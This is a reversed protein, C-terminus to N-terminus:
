PHDELRKLLAPIHIQDTKYSGTLAYLVVNLGFRYAQQRQKAGGPIVAYPMNGNADIAWAHAWDAFGIIIPSIDDNDSEKVRSIWVPLHAYRGPFDRLLYFTHALLNHKTIPMLPPIRLGALSHRLIDFVGNQDDSGVTGSQTDIWLVGGHAMFQNLADIAAPSLHTESPIPWYILPYYSLDDIGPRVADPTGLVVSTKANVFDSLGKLGERSVTDIAQNDTVVYALRTELAAQPSTQPLVFAQQPFSTLSVPPMILNKSSSVAPTTLTTLSSPPPMHPTPVTALPITVHPITAQPVLAKPVLAKPVTPSPVTAQSVYPIIQGTNLSPTNLSPARAEEREQAAKQAREQPTVPTREQQKWQPIWMQAQAPTIAGITGGISILGWLFLFLLKKQTQQTFTIFGARMLSIVLSDLFLLTMAFVICFLGLPQDLHHEAPDTRIGCLMEPKLTDFANTTNLARRHSKDGYLGPPHKLSVLTHAFDHSKIGRAFSPPTGLIGEGNLTLFPSLLDTDTPIYVGNAQEILRQLMSVFLGSLPLSSWDATSSVHFLIIKGKGLSTYTVLPTGDALRAWVHKSLYLTPKALVQQTITVDSPITLGYFPSTVKFPSLKQPTDWTMTGNLQRMGELLPVPLLTKSPFDTDSSDAYNQHNALLPGAFRILTGGQQVWDRVRNFTKGELLSGDPAILVSLPQTLLQQASGERLLPFPALARRLYFDRGLFPTNGSVTSLLGVPHVMQRSDRLFIASAGMAGQVHLSTIRNCLEFPLNTTINASTAHDPLFVPIVALLSGDRTYAKILVHRPNKTPLGLLRALTKINSSPTHTHSTSLPAALAFITQSPFRIDQVSGLAQLATRFSADDHTAVGDAIYFIAAYPKKQKQSLAKLLHATAARHPFWPEPHLTTLLPQVTAAPLPSPPKIPKEELLTDELTTPTTHILLVPDHAKAAQAVIARAVELRDAWHDASFLSNDIVLLVPGTSPLPSTRHVLYPNAFGVILFFLVACRLLLLWFSSHTTEHHRTQLPPLVAVPPFVHVRARPPIVQLLWWIIPLIFLALLLTPFQFFLYM